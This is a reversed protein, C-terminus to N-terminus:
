KSKAALILENFIKLFEPHEKALNEPHFQLGILFRDDTAEIAEIIGDESLASVLLNNGLEKIAQHHLSNVFIKEKKFVSYLKSDKEVKISHYFETNSIGEPNHGLCNPVQTYIDQYLNGGLAINAIQLGRCIGLIPMKRGYAKKFLGLEYKDRIASIQNIEKLPNEDYSLPSIDLGGTFIIGDLIDLYNHYNAEDYIIPISVPIGGAAFVANIYNSNVSHHTKKIGTFTTIGIIPKM